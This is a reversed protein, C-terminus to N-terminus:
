LRQLTEPVRCSLVLNSTTFVWLFDGVRKRSIGFDVVNSSRSPDNPRSIYAGNASKSFM